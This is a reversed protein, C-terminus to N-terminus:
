RARKAYYSALSEARGLRTSDLPHSRLFEFTRDVATERNREQLKTFFSALGYPDYGARWSYKIGLEDAQLEDQRSFGTMIVNNFAIDAAKRAAVQDRGFALSSFIDYGLSKQLQNVSHLAAVHGVEHGIVAALESDTATVKETETTVYIFGGPAAFANLQDSELLTFHYDINRRDSVAAIKEGIRQVREAAATGTQVKYQKGIEADVNRGINIEEQVGVLRLESQGSVPNVACGSALACVVLFAAVAARRARQMGWGGYAEPTM